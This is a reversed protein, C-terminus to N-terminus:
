KKKLKRLARIACADWALPLGILWRSHAPRLQGGSVTEATSGTLMEGTATLRAPGIRTVLAQTKRSSDTNGAENHAETAPSGAMPTPWGALMMAQENLPRSNRDMTAESARGDRWDRAAPTAWSALGAIAELDAGSQHGNGIKGGRIGHGNQSHGTNPTPWSALTVAGDLDMGGTYTPTSKSNPGGSPTNPTPWSTFGSDSTRRASARLAFISRGAPTIRVKWTLNFLTSGLLHTKRRLNSALSLALAASPSLGSGTQGFIDSTPLAKRKARSRSAKVPVPAPGSLVTTPGDPSAYPTPGSASAPSSIASPSDECITPGFLSLQDNM